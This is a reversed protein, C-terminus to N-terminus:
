KKLTVLYVNSVEKNTMIKYFWKNKEDNTFYSFNEILFKLSDNPNYSTDIKTDLKKSYRKVYNQWNTTNIPSCNSLAFQNKLDSM